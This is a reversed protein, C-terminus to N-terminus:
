GGGDLTDYAQVRRDALRELPEMFATMLRDPDEGRLDWNLEVKDIKVTPGKPTTPAKKDKGISEMFQALSEAYKKADADVKKMDLSKIDIKDLADAKTLLQDVKTFTDLTDNKFKELNRQSRAASEDSVMGASALMQILGNVPVMVGYLALKLAGWIGIFIAMAKMFFSVSDAAFGIVDIMINLMGNFMSAGSTGGVLAQGVAQLKLWFISAVIILPKLNITGDRLGKVISDRISEWNAVFYAAVGAIAVALVGLVLAAVGIVAVFAAATSAMAGMALAAKDLWRFMRFGGSDMGGLVKGIGSGMMGTLGRGKGHAGRVLGVHTQKSFKQFLELGKGGYKAAGGVGSVAAGATWIAAGAMMKTLGYAFAGKILASGIQFAKYASDAIDEWNNSFYQAAREAASMLRGGARALVDGFYAAAAGLKELNKEGFVGGEGNVKILFKRFSEYLPATLKGTLQELASQTTSVVGGMSESYSKAVDPGIKEMAKMMINLRNDGTLKNFQETMDAGMKLDKKFVGLAQGAELVPKQMVKWINMEAGASGAIIRGVQQGLVDYDGGALGGLLSARKMFEMHRTLDETQTALGAASNQYLKAVQGFTAPSLKAIEYLENMTASAARLNTQWQTASGNAVQAADDMFNFMQFMSAVELRANEMTQNFKLGNAVAGAGTVIAFVASIAAGLKGWQGILSGVSSFMEGGVSRWRAGMAAIADANRMAAAAAMAMQRVFGGRMKLWAVVEYEAKDAM